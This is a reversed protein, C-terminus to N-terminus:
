KVIAEDVVCEPVRLAARGALLNVCGRALFYTM